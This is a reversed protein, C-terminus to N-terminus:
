PQPIAATDHCPALEDIELQSLLLGASTPKFTFHYAHDDSSCTTGTCHHMAIVLDEVDPLVVEDLPVLQKKHETHIDGDGDPDSDSYPDYSVEVLQLGRPAIYTSFYSPEDNRQEREFSALVCLGRMLAAPTRTRPLKPVFAHDGFSDLLRAAHAAVSCDPSKTAATYAAHLDAPLKAGHSDIEHDGALEDMATVRAQAALQEDTIAALFAARHTEAPLVDIAGGAHLQALAAARHADDLDGMMSNVVDHQGAKWAATMLDFRDDLDTDPWARIAEAVLQSEPPPLSAVARLADRVAPLEDADLAEIAWLAVLRRLCPDALTATVPPTPVEPPAKSCPPAPLAPCAFNGDHLIAIALQHAAPANGPIEALKEEWDDGTPAITKWLALAAADDALQVHEWDIALLKKPEFSTPAPAPPRPTPAPAVPAAPTAVPAPAPAAGCAALVLACCTYHASAKWPSGM